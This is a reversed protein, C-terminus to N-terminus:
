NKRMNIIGLEFDKHLLNLLKAEELVSEISQKKEKAYAM